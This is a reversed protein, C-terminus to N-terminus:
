KKFYKDAQLKEMFRYLSIPDDYQNMVKSIMGIYELPIGECIVDAREIIRYEKEIELAKKARKKEAKTLSATVENFRQLGKIPDYNSNLIEEIGESAIDYKSKITKDFNKDVM